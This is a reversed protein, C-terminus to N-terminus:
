HSTLVHKRYTELVAVLHVGHLLRLYTNRISARNCNIIYLLSLNLDYEPWVSLKSKSPVAKPLKIYNNSLSLCLPCYSLYFFCTYQATTNM